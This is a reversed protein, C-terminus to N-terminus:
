KKQRNKRPILSKTKVDVKLDKLERISESQLELIEFAGAVLNDSGDIVSAMVESKPCAVNKNSDADYKSYNGLIKGDKKNYLVYLPGVTNSKTEM